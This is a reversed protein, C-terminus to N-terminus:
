TSVDKVHESMPFIFLAKVTKAVLNPNWGIVEVFSITNKRRCMQKSTQKEAPYVFM